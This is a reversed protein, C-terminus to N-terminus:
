GLPIQDPQCHCSWCFVQCFSHGFGGPESRVFFRRSLSKPIGEGLSNEDQKCSEGCVVSGVVNMDQACSVALHAPFASALSGVPYDWSWQSSDVFQPFKAWLVLRPSSIGTCRLGNRIHSSLPQFFEWSPRSFAGVQCGCCVPNAQQYRHGWWGWVSDGGFQM